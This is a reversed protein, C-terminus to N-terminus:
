PFGVLPLRGGCNGTDEIVDVAEDLLESGVCVCISGTTDVGEAEMTVSLWLTEKGLVTHRSLLGVPVTGLLQNIEGIGSSAGAVPGAAGAATNM